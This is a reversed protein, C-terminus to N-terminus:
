RKNYIDTVAEDASMGKMLRWNLSNRSVNAKRACQSITMKEGNFLIFHNNRKNNEQVEMTVWRCNSPEYNGNNDIRDITLGPKYGNAKSWKWFEEFTDWEPCISIGREGYNRYEKCRPNNCRQRMHIWANYPATGIMGHKARSKRLEQNLCGCSKTVGRRVSTSETITTNGCDCKFIWRASSRGNSGVCEIATLRGFRQGTIDILGHGKEFRGDSAPM